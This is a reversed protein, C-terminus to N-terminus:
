PMNAAPRRRSGSCRGPQMAPTRRFCGIGDDGGLGRPTRFHLDLTIQGAGTLPEFGFPFCVAMTSVLELGVFCTSNALLALYGGDGFLTSSM